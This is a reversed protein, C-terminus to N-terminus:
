SLKKKRKGDQGKRGEQMRTVVAVFCGWVGHDAWTSVTYELKETQYAARIRPQVTVAERTPVWRSGMSCSEGGRIYGIRGLFLETGMGGL